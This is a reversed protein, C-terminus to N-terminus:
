RRSSKRDPSRSRSRSRRSEEANKRERSRKAPRRCELCRYSPKWSGDWRELPINLETAKRAKAIKWSPVGIPIGCKKGAKEGCEENGHHFEFRCLHPTNIEDESETRLILLNMEKKWAESTAVKMNSHKAADIKSGTEMARQMIGALEIKDDTPAQKLQGFFSETASSGTATQM